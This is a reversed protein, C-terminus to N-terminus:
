KPGLCIPHHGDANPPTSKKIRDALEFMIIEEPSVRASEGLFRTKGAIQAGKAWGLACVCFLGDCIYARELVGQLVPSPSPNDRFNDWQWRPGWSCEKRIDSVRIRIRSSGLRYSWNTLFTCTQLFHTNRCSDRPFPSGKIKSCLTQEPFEM